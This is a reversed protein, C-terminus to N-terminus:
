DDDDVVLVLVLVLVKDDYRSFLELHTHPICKKWQWVSCGQKPRPRGMKMINWVKAMIMANRKGVM